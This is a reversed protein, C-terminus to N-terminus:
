PAAAGVDHTVAAKASSLLARRVKRGLRSEATRDAADASITEAAALRSFDRTGPLRRPVRSQLPMGVVRVM